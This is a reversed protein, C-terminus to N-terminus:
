LQYEIGYASVQAVELHVNKMEECFSPFDFSDYLLSSTFFLSAM